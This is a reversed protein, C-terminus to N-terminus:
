GGINQGGAKVDLAHQAVHIGDKSTKVGTCKFGLAPGLVYVRSLIISNERNVVFIVGAAAVVVVATTAVVRLLSDVAVAWILVVNDADVIVVAVAEVEVDEAAVVAM